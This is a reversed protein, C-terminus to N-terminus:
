VVTMTTTQNQVVEAQALVGFVALAIPLLMLMRRMSREGNNQLYKSKEIYRREKRREM